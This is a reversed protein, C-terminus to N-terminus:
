VKEFYPRRSFLRAYDRPPITARTEIEDRRVLGASRLRLYETIGSISTRERCLVGLVVLANRFFTAAHVTWPLDGTLHSLQLLFRNRVSLRNLEPALESRREPLVNRVHYFHAEPLYLTKFSLRSMRLALEADERYAFFREDFFEPSGDAGHFSTM